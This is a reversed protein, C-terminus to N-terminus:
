TTPDQRDETQLLNVREKLAEIQALLPAVAEEVQSLIVKDIEEIAEEFRRPDPTPADM